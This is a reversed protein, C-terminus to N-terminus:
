AKPEVLNYKKVTERATFYNMGIISLQNLNGLTLFIDTLLNSRNNDFLYTKSFLELVSLFWLAAFCIIAIKLQKAANADESRLKMEKIKTYLITVFYVLFVMLTYFRYMKDFDPCTDLQKPRRYINIKTNDRTANVITYIHKVVDNIEQSKEPISVNIPQYIISWINSDISNPDFFRSVFGIKDMAFYLTIVFIVPLLFIVLIKVVLKLKNTCAQSDETGPEPSGSEELDDTKTPKQQIKASTPKEPQKSAGMLLSVVSHLFSYLFMSNEMFIEDFCKENPFVTANSNAERKRVIKSANHKMIKHIFSQYNHLFDENPNTSNEFPPMTTDTAETTPTEPYYETIKDENEQIITVDDEVGLVTNTPSIVHQSMVIACYFYFIGIFITNLSESLAPVTINQLNTTKLFRVFYVSSVAGILILIVAILVYTAYM